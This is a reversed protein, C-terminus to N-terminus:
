NYMFWHTPIPMGTVLLQEIFSNHLVPWYHDYNYTIDFLFPRIICYSSLDSLVCFKGWFIETKFMINSNWLGSSFIKSIAFGMWILLTLWLVMHKLACKKACWGFTLISMIANHQVESDHHYHAASWLWKWSSSCEGKFNSIEQRCPIVTLYLLHSLMEHGVYVAACIICMFYFHPPQWPECFKFNHFQTAEFHKKQV